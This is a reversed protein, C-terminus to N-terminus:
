RRHDPHELGVQKGHPALLREDLQAYNTLKLDMERDYSKQCKTLLWASCYSNLTWQQSV